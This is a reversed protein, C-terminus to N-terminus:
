ELRMLDVIVFMLCKTAWHYESLNYIALHCAGQYSVALILVFVGVDLSLGLFYFYDRLGNGYAQIKRYLSPLIARGLGLM